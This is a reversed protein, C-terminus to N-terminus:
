KDKKKGAEELQARTVQGKVDKFQERFKKADEPTVVGATNTFSGRVYTMVAALKEDDALQAELPAMIGLIQANAPDKQIGKLIALALAAPEGTVIKSGILSPAMKKDPPIAVGAGDAGHCAMCNTYAAKGAEMLKAKQADDATAVAASAALLTLVFYKM